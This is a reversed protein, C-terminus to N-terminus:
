AACVPTTDSWEAILARYERAVPNPRRSLDYLGCGNVHGRKEALAIDWDVQDVLSYWTFGVIPIGDQRLRVVNMWQKWLWAPSDEARLVNTETHMLPMRYRDHYDRGMTYLGLVDEVPVHRGSPTVIHENRGYYDIGLVHRGARPTSMFWDYEQRSMGNDLLYLLTDAEFPRAYLLDLSFFRQRNFDLTASGPHRRAEHRYEASESPILVADPIVEVIRNSAVISAAVLHKLATVFAADSTLQENWLGDKASIRATVYIENVPTFYRVWPYRRAVAAAYEAFHVPLDPNQFNGLWDPVGFHMLDLIPVIGLRRMEAMALDAFSWDYHGPGVHVLHYPLGYRLYTLGLEAVLALDERWHAYHGCEELLDRRIRGHGITPASCEIGTAFMFPTDHGPPSLSGARQPLELVDSALTM